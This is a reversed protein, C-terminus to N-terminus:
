AHYEKHKKKTLANISCIITATAFLLASMREGDAALTRTEQGYLTCAAMGLFFGGDSAMFYTSEATSRQCHDCCDLLKYLQESGTLGFGIGLIMPKLTDDLLGDHAIMSLIGVIICINGVASTYSGTRVANYRLTAMAIAFGCALSAMFQLSMHTGIIVGLAGSMLAVVLAVNWGQPLFFRDISVIHTCEEPARFPFKVTMVLCAAVCATAAGIGYFLTSGLQSRLSIAAIPGALIAFRAIWIAAYNAETRNHSETKDILLTCSLVRKAQGFFAGGLACVAILTYSQMENGIAVNPADFMSMGMIAGGLCVASLLFVKNRRYRQILWCGFFGSVCIGVVFAVMTLCAWRADANHGAFLRYPLLPMTMYCAMCLLLEAAILLSFEMNWMRHYTPTHLNDM